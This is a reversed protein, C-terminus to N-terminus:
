VDLSEITSEKIMAEFRKNSEEIEKKSILKLREGGKIVVEDKKKNSELTEVRQFLEDLQEQFPKM